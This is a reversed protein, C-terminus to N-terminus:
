AGFSQDLLQSRVLDLKHRDALLHIKVVRGHAVTLVFIGTLQRDTFGLLAPQADVSQSVLTHRPGSWYLLLNRAVLQAGTVVLGTRTDITGAVDPDLIDLLETLDGNACANIFTDTIHRHEHGRDDIVQTSDATEIKRRARRALQRCSASTRGVTEAITDFPLGFIDHLVFAVREAPSLRELVVALAIRLNDDLTVRDAPDIQRGPTHADIDGADVAVEHRARASKIEDLCLRSTVVVLWGRQDDIQDIQAQLLRSFAEQVVDEARGLDGLMRFALDVLYPRHARWATGVAEPGAMITM